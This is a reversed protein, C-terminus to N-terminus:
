IPTPIQAMTVFSTLDKPNGCSFSAVCSDVSKGWWEQRCVFPLPSCFLPMHFLIPKVQLMQFYFELQSTNPMHQVKNVWCMSSALQMCGYHYYQHSFPLFCIRCNQTVVTVGSVHCPTNYHALINIHFNQIHFTPNHRHMGPLRIFSLPHTARSVRFRPVFHLHTPLKTGM